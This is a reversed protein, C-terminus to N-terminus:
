IQKALMAKLFYKCGAEDEDGGAVCGNYYFCCVNYLNGFKLHVKQNLVARGEGTEEQEVALFEEM